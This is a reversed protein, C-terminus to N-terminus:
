ARRFLRQKSPHAWNKTGMLLLVTLGSSNASNIWSEPAKSSALLWGQSKKPKKNERERKKDEIAKPRVLARIRAVCQYQNAEIIVV